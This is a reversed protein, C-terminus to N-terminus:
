VSPLDKIIFNPGPIVKNDIRYDCETWDYLQNLKHTEKFVTGHLLNDTINSKIKNYCNINNNKLNIPIDVDRSSYKLNRDTQYVTRQHLLHTPQIRYHSTPRDLQTLSLPIQFLSIVNMSAQVRFVVLSYINLSHVIYFM